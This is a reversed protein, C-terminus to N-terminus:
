LKALLKRRYLLTGTLSSVVFLGLWDGPGTNVLNDSSASQDASSGQNSASNSSTQGSPQGAGSATRGAESASSGAKGLNPSSGAAQKREGTRLPPSSPSPNHHVSLGIISSLIVVAIFYVGYLLVKGARGM